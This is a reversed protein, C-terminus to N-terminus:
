NNPKTDGTPNNPGSRHTSLLTNQRKGTTHHLHNQDDDDAGGALSSDSSMGSGILSSTSATRRGSTPSRPSSATTGHRATGTPSPSAPRSGGVSSRATPSPSLTWSPRPAGTATRVRGSVTDFRRDEPAEADEPLLLTVSLAADLREAAALAAEPPGIVLCLGESTVDVVPPEAAFSTVIGALATFLIIAILRM